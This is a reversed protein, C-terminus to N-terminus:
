ATRNKVYKDINAKKINTNTVAFLKLTNNTPQSPTPTILKARILKQNVRAKALLAAILAITTFRIPSTNKNVPNANIKETARESSKPTTNGTISKKNVDASQVVECKSHTPSHKNNAATPLLAWLPLCM